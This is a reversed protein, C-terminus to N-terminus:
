DKPEKGDRFLCMMENTLSLNDPQGIIEERPVWIATKLEQRDMHITDDGDVDCYFGALLDDVFGWPQSKYYKINKVKLGVEEMVERQVCEELTEGIETFGAVLAFFPVRQGPRDAYKTLLLKEGNKIGVIVAPNIRPYIKNGCSPCLLARENKDLETPHGCCGCYRNHIYWNHIHLATTALYMQHMPINGRKRMGRATVFQFGEPIDETDSVDPLDPALPAKSAPVLPESPFYYDVGDMSLMFNLSKIEGYEQATPFVISGDDAFKALLQNGKFVIVPSDKSARKGGVFENHLKHPAIDQIM